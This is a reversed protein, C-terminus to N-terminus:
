TALYSIFACKNFSSFRAFFPYLLWRKTEGSCYALAWNEEDGLQAEKLWGGLSQHPAPELHTYSYGCEYGNESTMGMGMGIGMLTGFDIWIDMGM